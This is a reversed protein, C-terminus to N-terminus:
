AVEQILTRAEREIIALATADSVDDGPEDNTNDDVTTTEVHEWAPVVPLNGMSEAREIAYIFMADCM